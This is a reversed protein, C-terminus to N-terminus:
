IKNTHGSWLRLDYVTTMTDTQTKIFTNMFDSRFANMYNCTLSNCLGCPCHDLGLMHAIEHIFGEAGRAFLQDSAVMVSFAPDINIWLGDNTGSTYSWEAAGYVFGITLNFYNYKRADENSNTTLIVNLFRPDLIEYFEDDFVRQNAKMSELSYNKQYRYRTYAKFDFNTLGNDQFVKETEKIIGDIKRDFLSQEYSESISNDIFFRIQFPISEQDFKPCDPKDEPIPLVECITDPVLVITTDIEGPLDPVEITDVEVQGNNDDNQNPITNPNVCAFLMSGIIILVYSIRNKVM